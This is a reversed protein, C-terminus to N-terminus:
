ESLRESSHGTHSSLLKLQQLLHRSQPACLHHLTFTLQLLESCAHQLLAPVPVHCGNTACPLLACCSPYATCRHLTRSNFVSISCSPSGHHHLHCQTDTCSRHLGRVPFANKSHARPTFPQTNPHADYAPHHFSVFEHSPSVRLDGRSCTFTAELQDDKGGGKWGHNGFWVSTRFAFHLRHPHLHLLHPPQLSLLHIGHGRARESVSCVPVRANIHVDVHISEKMEVM